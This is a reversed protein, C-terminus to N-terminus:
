YERERVLLFRLLINVVVVFGDVGRRDLDFVTKAEFKKRGGELGLFM